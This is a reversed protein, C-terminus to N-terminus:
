FYKDWFLKENSFSIDVYGVFNIYYKFFLSLHRSFSSTRLIDDHWRFGNVFADGLGDVDCRLVALRKIGYAKNGMIEESKVM